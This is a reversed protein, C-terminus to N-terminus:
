LREANSKLCRDSGLLISVAQASSKWKRTGPSPWSQGGKERQKKTEEKKAEYVLFGFYLVGPFRVVLLFCQDMLQLALKQFGQCEAKSRDGLGVADGVTVSVGVTKRGELNLDNQM